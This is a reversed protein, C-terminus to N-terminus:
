PSAPVPVVRDVRYYEAMTHAVWDEAPVRVPSFPEALGAIRLRRATVTTAGAARQRLVDANQADWAVSRTVMARGLVRLHEALFGCTVLATAACVVALASAAVRRRRTLHALAAGLAFGYATAALVALFTVTFWGRAIHQGLEGWGVRLAWMVPLATLVVTLAPLALAWALRAPRRAPGALAALRAPGLLLAGLAGAALAGLLAANTVTGELVHGWANLTDRAIGASILAEGDTRHAITQAHGPSTLVILAGATLGALLAAAGAAAYTFRRAFLLHTLLCLGGLVGGAFVIPENCTGLFTGAPLALVAAAVRARRTRARVAFAALACLLLLPLVHTLAGTAWFLTQYTRPQALLAVTAASLGALAAFPLPPRATLRGALGHALCAVALATAAFTVAGALKLSVGPVLYAFGHVIGNGVRGTVDEYFVRAAGLPGHDRAWNSLRYDDSTPRTFLGLFAVAGGLAACGLLVAWTAAAPGRAPRPPDDPVPPHVTVPPALAPDIITAM